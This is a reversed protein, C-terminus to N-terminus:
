EFKSPFINRFFTKIFMKRTLDEVFANESDNNYENM